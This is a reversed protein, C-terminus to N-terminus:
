GRDARGRSELWVFARTVGRLEALGKSRGACSNGPNIREKGIDDAILRGRDSRIRIEAGARGQGRRRGEEALPARAM